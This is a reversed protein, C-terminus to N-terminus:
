RTSPDPPTVEGMSRLSRLLRDSSAIPLPQTSPPRATLRLPSGPKKVALVHQPVLRAETVSAALETAVISKAALRYSTPKYCGLSFGRRARIASTRVFEGLQSEGLNMIKTGTM